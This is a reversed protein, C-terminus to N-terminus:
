KEIKLEAFINKSNELRIRRKGFPNRHVNTPLERSELDELPIEAHQHMCVRALDAVRVRVEAAARRERGAHHVDRLLGM